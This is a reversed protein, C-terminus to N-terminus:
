KKLITLKNNLISMFILSDTEILDENYVSRNNYQKIKGTDLNVKIIGEINTYYMINDILIPKNPTYSKLQINWELKKTQTNISYLEIKNIGYDEVVIHNDKIVLIKHPQNSFKFIEDINTKNISYVSKKYGGFIEGNKNNYLWFKTDTKKLWNEKGTEINISTIKNKYSCIIEYNKIMPIASKVGLVEWNIKGDEKSISFIRHEISLVILNNIDNYLIIFGQLKDKKISWKKKGTKESIAILGHNDTIYITGNDFIPDFVWFCNYDNKWKTKGTRADLAILGKWQDNHYITEKNLITPTLFGMIGGMPARGTGHEVTNIIKKTYINTFTLKNKGTIILTSDFLIPQLYPRSNETNIEEKFSELGSANLQVWTSTPIVKCSAILLILLFTFINKM